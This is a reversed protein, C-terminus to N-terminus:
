CPQRSVRAGMDQARAPSREPFRFTADGVCRGAVRQTSEM